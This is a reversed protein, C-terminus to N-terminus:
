KSNVNKVLLSLEEYVQILGARDDLLASFFPKRTEYSLPIADTNIGDIPIKHEVCFNNVYDLNEYATWIIIVCGIKKLDRVLNRVDHYTAGTKHYDHLTGDFDVGIFLSGHREYEALLRQFSKGKELYEDM